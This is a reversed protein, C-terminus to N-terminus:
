SRVVIGLEKVRRMVRPHTRLEPPAAPDFVIQGVWFGDGSEILDIAHVLDGKLASIVALELAATPEASLSDAIREADVKRGALWYM